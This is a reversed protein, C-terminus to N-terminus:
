RKGLVFIRDGEGVKGPGGMLSVNKEEYYGAVDRFFKIRSYVESKIKSFILLSITTASTRPCLKLM